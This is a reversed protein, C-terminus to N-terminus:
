SRPGTQFTGDKKRLKWKGRKVKLLAKFDQCRGHEASHNRALLMVFSKASGLTVTQHHCVRGLAKTDENIEYLGARILKLEIRSSKIRLVFLTKM